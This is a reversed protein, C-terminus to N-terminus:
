DKKVNSRKKKQGNWRKKKEEQEKLEVAEEEEERERAEKEEAEEAPTAAPRVSAAKAKHCRKIQSIELDKSGFEFTKETSIKTANGLTGSAQGFVAVNITCERHRVRKRKSKHVKHSVARKLSFSAFLTGVAPKFVFGVKSGEPKIEGVLPTTDVAGGVVTSGKPKKIACEEFDIGHAGMFTPGELFLEDYKVGACKVEYGHLWKLTFASKVKSGSNIPLKAGAALEKPPEPPNGVWWSFASASSAMVASLALAALMSALIVRARPGGARTFRRSLSSKM